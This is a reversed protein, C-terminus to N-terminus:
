RGSDFAAALARDYSLLESAGYRRCVALHLLDRAGLGPQSVALDHAAIVDRGEVPWVTTLDVALRMAADLTDTRGVPLYIHMLEQLVEASTATPLRQDLRERLLRQAPQRLPHPRGVAYVFVSTDVFAPGM